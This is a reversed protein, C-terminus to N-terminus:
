VEEQGECPAGGLALLLAAELDAAAAGGEPAGGPGSVGGDVAPLAFRASYEEYLARADTELRRAAPRDMLGELIKESIGANTEKM